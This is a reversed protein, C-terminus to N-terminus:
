NAYILVAKNNDSNRFHFNLYKLKRSQVSFSLILQDDRFAFRHLSLTHKIKMKEKKLIKINNNAEKIKYVNSFFGLTDLIYIDKELPFISYDKAYLLEILEEEEMGNLLESEDAGFESVTDLM